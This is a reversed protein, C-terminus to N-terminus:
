TKDDGEGAQKAKFEAIISELEERSGMDESM